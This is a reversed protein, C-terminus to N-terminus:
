DDFAGRLYAAYEPSKPYRRRLQTALSNEAARDGMRREVRIAAWLVSASLQDFKLVRNIYFRARENDGRKQHVLALNANTEPNGPDAQFAQSLYHEAGALNKLRLSCVGANNLAKAPSQYAPNKVAADFYVLSEAERGTQCLFWGYNNSFNPNGPALRLAQRFSEDALRHEGMDMYILGRMSHAEAMGPDIQLAQKIEDLAVDMQGQEFYGVALQLRIQARRQNDTQDSLTRVEGTTSESPMSSCAAALVAAAVIMLISGMRTQKV